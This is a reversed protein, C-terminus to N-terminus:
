RLKNRLIFRTEAPLNAWFVRYIILALLVKALTM